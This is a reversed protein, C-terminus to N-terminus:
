LQRAFRSFFFFFIFILYCISVSVKAQFHKSRSYARVTPSGVGELQNELPTGRPPPGRQWKGTNDVHIM